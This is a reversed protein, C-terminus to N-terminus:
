LNCTHHVIHDFFIARAIINNYLLGRVSVCFGYSVWAFVSVRIGNVRLSGNGGEYHSRVIHTCPFMCVRNGCIMWGIPLYLRILLLLAYARLGGIGDRCGFAISWSNKQEREVVGDDFEALERGVCFNM